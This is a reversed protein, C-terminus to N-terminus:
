SEICAALTVIVDVRHSWQSGDAFRALAVLQQSTALRIRTSLEARGCAPGFSARLVDRQPNRENFVIIEQVRDTANMASDVRVTIPVANGNEVLEAIELSIKGERVPQGEAWRDVMQQLSLTASVASAPRTQLCLLGAALLLPRRGLSPLASM